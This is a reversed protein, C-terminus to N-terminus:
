SGCSNYTRSAAISMPVLETWMITTRTRGSKENSTTSRSFAITRSPAPPRSPLAKVVSAILAARCASEFNLRSASECPTSSIIAAAVLAVRSASFPPSKRLVTICSVPMRSGVLMALAAVTLLAVIVVVVGIVWTM